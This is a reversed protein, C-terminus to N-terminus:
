VGAPPPPTGGGQGPDKPPAQPPPPAAQPPAQPPAAQPPPAVQPPAQPPQQVPPQPPYAQPPAQPPGYAGPQPPPQYTQGPIPPPAVGPARVQKEYGPEANMAYAVIVVVIGGIGCFFTLFFALAFFGGFSKGKNSAVKGAWLGLLGGVVLWAGLMIALAPAGTIEWEYEAALMKWWPTSYVSMM